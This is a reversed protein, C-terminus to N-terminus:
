HERVDTPLIHALVFPGAGVALWLLLLLRGHTVDYDALLRSWSLGDVYHGFGFEFAVAGLLWGGGIVLAEDPQVRMRRVFGAIAALFTTTVLVTGAQHAPLEGIRPTLWMERLIGAAIAIGALMLWFGAAPLLLAAM